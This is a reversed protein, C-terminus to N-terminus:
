VETQVDRKRFVIVAIIIALAVLVGGGVLYWVTPTNAVDTKADGRIVGMLKGDKYISVSIDSEQQADNSPDIKFTLGLTDCVENAVRLAAAQEADTYESWVIGKYEVGALEEDYQISLIHALQEDSVTIEDLMIIKEVDNYIDLGESSNLTSKLNELLTKKNESNTDAIATAVTGLLLLVAILASIIRKM